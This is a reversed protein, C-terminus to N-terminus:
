SVLEQRNCLLDLASTATWGYDHIVQHLSQAPDNSGKRPLEPPPTTDMCDYFEFVSGLRGYWKRVLTLTAETLTATMEDQGYQRLGEIIQHNLNIWVPGRWMDGVRALGRQDAM